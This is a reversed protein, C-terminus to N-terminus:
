AYSYGDKRHMPKVEDPKCYCRKGNVRVEIRKENQVVVRGVVGDLTRAMDGTKWPTKYSQRPKSCPFGFKDMRCLQRSREKGEGDEGDEGDGLRATARRSFM